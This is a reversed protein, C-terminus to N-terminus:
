TAGPSRWMHRAAAASRPTSPATSRIAGWESHRAARSTSTSDLPSSADRRIWVSRASAARWGASTSSACGPQGSRRTSRALPTSGSCFDRPGLFGGVVLRGDPLPQLRQVIHSSALELPAVGGAGYSGDVAGASDVRAVYGSVSAGVGASGGIVISGGPEIGVAAVRDDEGPFDLMTVGGSGFGADLAGDVDYRAVYPVGDTIGNTTDGAVVIADDSQLTATIDFGGTPSVPTVTVGGTGFALDPSGSSLYGYLVVSSDQRGVVVIRGSAQVLM